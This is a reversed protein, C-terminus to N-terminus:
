TKPCKRCRPLANKKLDIKYFVRIQYNKIIRTKYQTTPLWKPNWLSGNEPANPSVRKSPITNQLGSKEVFDGAGVMVRFWCPSTEEINDSKLMDIFRKFWWICFPIHSSTSCCLPFMVIYVYTIIHICTYSIYICLIIVVSMCSFSWVWSICPFYFYEGSHLYKAFWPDEGWFISKGALWKQLFPRLAVRHKTRGPFNSIYRLSSFVM